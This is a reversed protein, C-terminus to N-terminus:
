RAAVLGSQPITAFADASTHDVVLGAAHTSAAVLVLSVALLLRRFWQGKPPTKEPQQFLPPSHFGNKRYRQKPCRWADTMMAM